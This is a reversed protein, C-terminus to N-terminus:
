ELRTIGKEKTFWLSKNALDMLSEQHTVMIVQKDFLVTLDKVLAAISEVRDASVMKAPEDLIMPTKPPNSLIKLLGFRLGISITDIMGGGFNSEPPLVVEENGSNDVVYFDIVTSNRKTDPIIRFSYDNGFVSQICMTVIENLGGTIKKRTEESVTQLFNRTGTLLDMHKPTNDIVEQLRASAKELEKKQTELSVFKDRYVTSLNKLEQVNM